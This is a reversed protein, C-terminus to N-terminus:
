KQTRWQKFTKEFDEFSEIKFVKIKNAWKKQNQRLKRGKVKLEIALCTNYTGDKKLLILDPMGSFAASLVMFIGAIEPYKQRYYMLSKWANDPIRIKIIDPFYTLYEDIQNQLDSETQVMNKFESVSVTDRPKPFKLGPHNSAASKNM